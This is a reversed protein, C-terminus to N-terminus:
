ERLESLSFPPANMESDLTRIDYEAAQILTGLSFAPKSPQRM